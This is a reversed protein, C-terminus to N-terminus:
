LWDSASRRLRNDAIFLLFGNVIFHDNEVAAGFGHLRFGCKLKDDPFVFADVAIGVINVIALTTSVKM